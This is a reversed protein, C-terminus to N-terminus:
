SQRFDRLYTNKYCNTVLDLKVQRSVLLNICNTLFNNLLLMEKSIELFMENQANEQHKNTAYNLLTHCMM